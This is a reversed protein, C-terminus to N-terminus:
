DKASLYLCLKKFLAFILVLNLYIKSGLMTLSIDLVRMMNKILTNMEERTHVMHQVRRLVTVRDFGSGDQHWEM